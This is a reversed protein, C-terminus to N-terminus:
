CTCVPLVFILVNICINNVIYFKRANKLIFNCTKAVIRFVDQNSFLFIIKQCDSVSMANRNVKLVETLLNNRFDSYVPWHLIAYTEDEILNSCTFCCREELKINEYRGTELRIPTVGCRCKAFASRDNFPVLVKCYNEVGYEYNFLKYSRLKNRGNGTMSAVANVNIHWSESYKLFMNSVLLDSLIRKDIDRHISCYDALVLYTFHKRVVYNWNKVRKSIM